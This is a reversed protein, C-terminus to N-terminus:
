QNRPLQTPDMTPDPAAHFISTLIHMALLAAGYSLLSGAPQPYSFVHIDHKKPVALLWSVNLGLSPFFILCYMKGNVAYRSIKLVTLNEFLRSVSEAESFRVKM